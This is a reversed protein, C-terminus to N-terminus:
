RYGYANLNANPFFSKEANIVGSSNCSNCAPELQGLLITVPHNFPIPQNINGADAQIQLWISGVDRTLFDLQFIDPNFTGPPGYFIARVSSNTTVFGTDLNGWRGPDSIKGPVTASITIEISAPDVPSHGFGSLILGIFPSSTGDQIASYYLVGSGLSHGIGFVKSFHINSGTLTKGITGDQLKRALSSAVAAAAPLQCDKSNYPPVSRGACINDYAFSSVGRSCAFEVYSYNQFGYWQVNWYQSSYTFGHALLQVAQSGQGYGNEVPQCLQGFVEFTRKERRLATSNFPVFVSPDVEAQVDVDVLILGTSCSCASVPATFNASIIPLAVSIGLFLKTLM